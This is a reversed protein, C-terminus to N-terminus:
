TPPTHTMSRQSSRQHGCSGMHFTSKDSRDPVAIICFLVFSLRPGRAPGSTEWDFMRESFDRNAAAVTRFFYATAIFYAGIM